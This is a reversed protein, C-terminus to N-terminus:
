LGLKDAKAKLSELAAQGAMLEESAAGKAAAAKEFELKALKGGTEGAVILSEYQGVQNVYDAGQLRDNSGSNMNIFVRLDRKCNESKERAARALERKTKWDEEAAQVAKIASNVRQEAQEIELLVLNSGLLDATARLGIYQDIAAQDNEGSRVLKLLATKDEDLRQKVDTLKTM